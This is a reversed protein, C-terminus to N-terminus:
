PKIFDRHENKEEQIFNKVKYNSCGFLYQDRSHNASVCATKNGTM